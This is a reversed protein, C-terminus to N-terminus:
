RRTPSGRRPPLHGTQFEVELSRRDVLWAHHGSVTGTKGSVLEQRVWRTITSKSVRKQHMFEIYEQAEPVTLFDKSGLSVPTPEPEPQQVALDFTFDHYKMYHHYVGQIAGNKMLVYPGYTLHGDSCIMGNGDAERDLILYAGDDLVSAPWLNPHRDLIIQQEPTLHSTRTM